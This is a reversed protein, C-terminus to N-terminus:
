VYNILLFAVTQTPKLKLILQRFENKRQESVDTFTGFTEGGIYFTCLMNEGVDFYADLSEDIYNAVCNYYVSGFQTNGHEMGTEMHEVNPSHEAIGTNEPGIVDAPSLGDLNEHVFVNFGAMQLQQQIYGASQRALINGPHNMKRIIAAKRDPLPVDENTILGLRQEWRTADDATFNDNDPLISDLVSLSDNYFKEQSKIMASEIRKKLSNENVHFARGRPLLQRWVLLLKEAVTKSM